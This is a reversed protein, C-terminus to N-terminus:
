GGPQILHFIPHVMECDIAYVRPKQDPTPQALVSPQPAQPTEVWDAPKQFVDAMYSPIPYENEIMDELSLVYQAPNKDIALSRGALWCLTM